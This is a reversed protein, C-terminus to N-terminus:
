NTNSRKANIKGTVSNSGREVLIEAKIDGNVTNETGLSVKNNSTISGNVKNKSSLSIDAVPLKNAQNSTINKLENEANAFFSGGIISVNSLESKTSIFINSDSARLEGNLIFSEGAEFRSSKLILNGEVKVNKLLKAPADTLILNGKIASDSEVNLKGGTLVVDGNVIQGKELSIERNTENISGRDAPRKEEARQRSISIVDKNAPNNTFDKADKYTKEWDLAYGNLGKKFHIKELCPAVVRVRNGSDLCYANQLTAILTGGKNEVTKIREIFSSNNIFQNDFTSSVYISSAKESLLISLLSCMPYDDAGTVSACEDAMWPNGYEKNYNDPFYKGDVWTLGGDVSTKLFQSNQFGVQFSLYDGLQKLGVKYLPENFNDNGPYYLNTTNVLEQGEFSIVTQVFKNQGELQKGNKTKWIYIDKYNLIKGDQFKLDFVMEKKDLNVGPETWTWIKDEVNTNAAIKGIQLINIQEAYLGKMRWGEFISPNAFLHSVTIQKDNYNFYFTRTYQPSIKSLSQTWDSGLVTRSINSIESDAIDWNTFQKFQSKSFKENDRIFWNNKEVDKIPICNIEIDQIQHEAESLHPNGIIAGTSTSFNGGISAKDRHIYYKPSRYALLPQSDFSKPFQVSIGCEPLDVVQTGTKSLDAFSQTPKNLFRSFGIAALFLVLLIFGTVFVIGWTLSISKKSM